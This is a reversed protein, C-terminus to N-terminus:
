SQIEDDEDEEIIEACKKRGFTDPTEADQVWLRGERLMDAISRTVVTSSGDHDFRYFLGNRDAMLIDNYKEHCWFTGNAIPGRHALPFNGGIVRALKM